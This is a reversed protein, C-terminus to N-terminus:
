PVEDTSLSVDEDVVFVADTTVDDLPQFRQDVSQLVCVCVCVPNCYGMLWYKYLEVICHATILPLLLPYILDLTIAM